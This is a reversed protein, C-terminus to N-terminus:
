RGEGRVGAFDGEPSESGMAAWHSAGVLGDLAAGHDTASDIVQGYIGLTMKPDTHGVQRM